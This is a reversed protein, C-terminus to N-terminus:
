APAHEERQMDGETMSQIDRQVLNAHILKMEPNRKLM